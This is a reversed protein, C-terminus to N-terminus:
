ENSIPARYRITGFASSTRSSRLMRGLALGAALLFATAPEPVQVVSAVASIGGGPPLGTIVFRSVESFAWYDSGGSRWRVYGLAYGPSLVSGQFVWSPKGALDALEASMGNFTGNLSLIEFGNAQPLFDSYWPSWFPGSVPQMTIIAELHAPIQPEGPGPRTDITLRAMIPDALAEHSFSLLFVTACAVLAFTKCSM